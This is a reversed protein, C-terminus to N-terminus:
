YSDTDMYLSEWCRHDMYQGLLDYPFQLMRLKAYAYVFVAIQVPLDMTLHELAMCLEYTDAGATTM